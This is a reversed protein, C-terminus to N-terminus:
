RCRPFRAMPLGIPACSWNDNISQRAVPDPRYSIYVPTQTGAPITPGWLEIALSHTSGPKLVGGLDDDCDAAALLKGDLRCRWGGFVDAHTFLCVRGHNWHQPVRFSKRFIAHHADTNDPLNFIGIRMRKWSSDDLKPDALSAAEPPASADAGELIKYAWDDTLDLSLKPRYPALPKGPDAVGSWWTRQLAFWDAPAQGIQGRPSLLARTEWSQFALHSLKAAHSDQNVPIAEGTNVEYCHVPKCGERFTFTATVPEGKTNWMVWIDYLGNNSIFHRTMIARDSSEIPTKKVNLWELIQGPLVSSNSGLNFVLGKGLRRVGAAVAGDDWELLDECAPDVKKLSLGSSNLAYRWSTADTHFVKQGPTPHLQRSPQGDGNPSLKDIGTVAYGTLRAIPWANAVVATHRGTQHYTIFVGGRRVWQEIQDVVEPDLITTNGDLIVRFRDAKGRAFDQELVGGRPYEAVLNSILEWFRNRQVLDPRAESSNWPFGCLRLNRDSNM